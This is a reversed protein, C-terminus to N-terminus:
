LTWMASGTDATRRLTIKISERTLYVWEHPKIPTVQTDEGLVSFDSIRDQFAPIKERILTAIEQRNFGDYNPHSASISGRGFAALLLEAIQSKVSDIDHVGALSGNIIIQYPREVVAKVRVRGEFLSDARAVLQRIDKILLDQESAENAVVTLNLHNINDLNAGYFKEHVTENWIAMYRFRAMFHWRVLMDFNGMFVANHDYTSPFSALLRMQSVTLPNAGARILGDPKFYLNLYREDNNLLDNLSAQKLTSNDVFGYTKTIYLRYEDGAQVTQGIRSSDGFMIVIDAFDDSFLTYVRDGAKANMFKPKYAFKAKQTLNVIDIGAIYEDSNTSINLQYFPESVAITLNQEYIISQECEVTQSEGAGVTIASLLRWQRGTGDEVVRGQNLTVTNEGTNEIVLRYQCPTAVPLIGKNIADAMITRNNSKIFPEIINVENDRSLAIVLERMATMLATVTPDGVQWREAIEPYDNLANDITTNLNTRQLTM